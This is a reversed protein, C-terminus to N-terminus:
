SIDFWIRFLMPFDSPDSKQLTLSFQWYEKESMNKELFSNWREAESEEMM